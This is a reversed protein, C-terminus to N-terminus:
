SVHVLEDKRNDVIDGVGYLMRYAKNIFVYEAFQNRRNVFENRTKPAIVHEKPVYTTIYLDNKLTLGQDLPYRNNKLNARLVEVADDEKYLESIGNLKCAWVLGADTYSVELPMALYRVKTGKRLTDFNTLNPNLFRLREESDNLTM